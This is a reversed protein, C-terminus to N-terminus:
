FFFDLGQERQYHRQQYLGMEVGLKKQPPQNVGQNIMSLRRIPHNDLRVSPTREPVLKRIKAVHIPQSSGLDGHEAEKKKSLREKLEKREEQM